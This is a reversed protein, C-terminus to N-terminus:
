LGHRRRLLFYAGCLLAVCGPEPVIQIHVPEANNYALNAGASSSLGSNSGLAIDFTGKADLPVDVFLQVLVDHGTGALPVTSGSIDIAALFVNGPNGTKALQLLTAGGNGFINQSPYFNCQPLDFDVDGAQLGGLMLDAEIQYGGISTTNDELKVLLSITDGPYAIGPHASQEELLFSEAMVSGHLSALAAILVGVATARRLPAFTRLVM